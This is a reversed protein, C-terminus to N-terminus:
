ANCVDQGTALLWGLVIDQLRIHGRWLVKVGPPADHKRALYGGLRALWLVAERLTPPESPLPRGPHHVAFLARWELRTFAVTCSQQGDVRAAYTLWLLRWAVVVFLALLRMLRDATRLQSREIRCGSKLVFHLREILWRYGYFRVCEQAQGFAQVALTTLLRWEIRKQGKPVPSVETVLIANVCLPTRPTAEVRYCPADLTVTTWRLQLRVVRPKREPRRTLSVLMQGGVPAAALKEWLHEPEGTARGTQARLRRNYANRILLESGQPRPQAFLEYIDAERDAVTIVTTGTPVTEHVAGLGAVWRFSEKEAFERQRWRERRGEAEPDRAWTEQHLLGLPVGEESVALVSHLWFGYSESPGIPGLDATGPHHDFKFATTDQIALIREGGAVRAVCAERLAQRLAEPTVAESSLARYAAAAEAHTTFTQPVSGGPHEVMRAVMLRIRRVRRPDGLGLTELEDDMWDSM